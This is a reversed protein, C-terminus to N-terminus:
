ASLMEEAGGFVKLGLQKTFISLTGSFVTLRKAAIFNNISLLKFNGFHYLVCTPFM